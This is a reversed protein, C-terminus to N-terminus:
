ELDFKGNMAYRRCVYDLRREYEQVEEILWIMDGTAYAQVIDSIKAQPKRMGINRLLQEPDYAGALTLLRAMHHEICIAANIAPAFQPSNVLHAWVSIEALKSWGEPMAPPPLPEGNRLADMAAKIKSTDVNLLM